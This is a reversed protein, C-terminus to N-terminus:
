KEKVFKLNLIGSRTYLQLFYMGNSLHDINLETNTLNGKSLIEGLTNVIAYNCNVDADQLKVKIIDKAPNPYVVVNQTEKQDQEIGTYSCGEELCGNSDVKLLMADQTSPELSRDHSFGVMMYGGDSTKSFGFVNENSRLKGPVYPM